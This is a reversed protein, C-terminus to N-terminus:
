REMVRKHAEGCLEDLVKRYAAIRGINQQYTREDTSSTSGIALVQDTITAIEEGIVMALEREFQSEYSV